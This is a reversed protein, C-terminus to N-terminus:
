RGLHLKFRAAQKARIDASVEIGGLVNNDDIIDNIRKIRDSVPPHNELYAGMDPHTKEYAEIRKMLRGMAQPEYGSASLTWVAWEDAEFEQDEGYENNAIDEALSGFYNGSFTGVPTLGDLNSIWPSPKVQGGGDKVYAKVAHNNAAHGLEHAVLAALEDESRVLNLAGETIWIFGGPTNYAAVEPSKLIGVTVGSWLATDSTASGWMYGAMRNTYKLKLQVQANGPDSVGYRDVLAASTGRGIYYEQEPTYNEPDVKGQQASEIASKAVYHGVRGAHWVGIHIAASIWKNAGLANSLVSAFLSCGSLVVSVLGCLLVASIIRRLSSM